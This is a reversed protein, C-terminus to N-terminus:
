KLSKLRSKILVESQYMGRLTALVTDLEPINAPKKIPVLDADMFVTQADNYHIAITDKTDHNMVIATICDRGPKRDLISVIFNGEDRSAENFITIV